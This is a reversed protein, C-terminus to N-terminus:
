ERYGEVLGIAREQIELLQDLPKGDSKAWQYLDRVIAGPGDVPRRSDDLWGAEQLVKCTKVVGSHGAVGVRRGIEPLTPERDDLVIGVIEMYVQHQRETLEGAM